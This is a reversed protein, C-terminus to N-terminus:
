TSLAKWKFRLLKLSICLDRLDNVHISSQVARISITVSRFETGNLIELADLFIYMKESNQSELKCDINGDMM